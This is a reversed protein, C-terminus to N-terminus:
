HESKKEGDTNFGLKDLQRMLENMKIVKEFQEPLLADGKTKKQELDHAQRLKKALKRAEKEKEAESDVPKVPEQDVSKEEIKIPGGVSNANEGKSSVEKGLHKGKRPQDKSKQKKPHIADTFEAGPIGGSGRTKWAEATKNKYVGIDEPPQYGARVRIEKRVSGDARVSSPIHREGSSTTTIGSTSSSDAMITIKILSQILVSTVWNM